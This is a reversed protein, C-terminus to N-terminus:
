AAAAVQGLLATAREALRRRLAMPLQRASKARPLDLEMLPPLHAYLAQHEAWNDFAMRNVNDM